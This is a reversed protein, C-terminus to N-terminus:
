KAPPNTANDYTAPDIQKLAKTAAVRADKDPAHLLPLIKPIAERALGGFHGLAAAAEDNLQDDTLYKTLLPIVVDPEGHIAGLSKIANPHVAPDSSQLAEILIPISAKAAPGFDGLNWAAESRREAAAAYPIYIGPLGNLGDILAMRATSDNTDHFMVQRLQPIIEANLIANAQNSASAETANVQTAWYSLTRGEILTPQINGLTQTLILLVAATTALGIAVGLLIRKIKMIAQTPNTTHPLVDHCGELDDALM